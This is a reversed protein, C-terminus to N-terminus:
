NAPKLHPGLPKIPGTVEIVVAKRPIGLSQIAQEAKPKWSNDKIGIALRNKAEDLDVATIGSTELMGMARDKWRKLQSITYQGQLAHMGAAPVQQEGFVAEIASRAAPLQSMDLLYIALRGDRGIFMGGFGPAKEEVRLLLDDYSEMTSRKQFEEWSTVIANASLNTCLVTTALAMGFALRSVRSLGEFRM